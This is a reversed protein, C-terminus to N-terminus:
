KTKGKKEVPDKKKDPVYYFTYYFIAHENEFKLFMRGTKNDLYYCYGYRSYRLFIHEHAKITLEGPPSTVKLDIDLKTPNKYDIIEISGTKPKEFTKQKRIRKYQFSGNKQRKMIFTMISMFDDYASENTIPKLALKSM